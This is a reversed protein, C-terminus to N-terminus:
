TIGGVEYAANEGVLKRKLNLREMKEDWRM